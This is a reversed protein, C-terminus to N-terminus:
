TMTSKVLDTVPKLHEKKNFDEQLINFHCKQLQNLQDELMNIENVLNYMTLSFLIVSFKRQLLKHM